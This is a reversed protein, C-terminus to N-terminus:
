AAYGDLDLPTPNTTFEPMGAGSQPAATDTEAGLVAKGAAVDRLWRTADDYRRSVTDTAKSDHLFYRAIDCCLGPLCSSEVLDSALPLRYRGNLYSNIAADAENLAFLIRDLARDAVAIADLDFASRDGNTVTLRMLNLDVVVADDPTAMQAMERAGFRILMQEPTAYAM